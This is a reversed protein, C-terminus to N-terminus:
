YRQKKSRGKGKIWSVCRVRYKSCRQALRRVAPRVKEDLFELWNSGTFREVRKLIAGVWDSMISGEQKLNIKGNSRKVFM